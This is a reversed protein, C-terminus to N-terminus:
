IELLDHLFYHQVVLKTTGHKGLHLEENTQGESSEQSVGAM